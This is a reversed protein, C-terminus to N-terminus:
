RMHGSRRPRGGAMNAYQLYQHHSHNPFSAVSQKREENAFLIHSFACLVCRKFPVTFEVDMDPGANHAHLGAVM